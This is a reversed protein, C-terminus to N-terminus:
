DRSNSKELERRRGFHVTMRLLGGIVLAFVTVPAGYYMLTATILGLLHMDAPPKVWEYVATTAFAIVILLSCGGAVVLFLLSLKSLVMLWKKEKNMEKHIGNLNKM